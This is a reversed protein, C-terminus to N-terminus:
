RTPIEREKCEEVAVEADITQLGSPLTPSLTYVADAVLFSAEEGLRTRVLRAFSSGEELAVQAAACRAYADVDSLRASRAMRAVVRVLDTDLLLVDAGFYARPPPPTAAEQTPDGAACAAVCVFCPLPWSHRARLVGTM